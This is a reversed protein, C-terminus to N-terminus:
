PADTPAHRSGTVPRARLFLSPFAPLGATFVQFPAAEVIDFGARVLARDTRRNMNCGQRNYLRWLPNFIEMFLGPVPRASKVHELLRVEGDRRLVRRVESLARDVDNVSCLVGALVVADFSEDTYPLAEASAVELTVHSPARARALALFREEPETGTVALGPAYHPFMLGTGCGIELVRGHLGHALRARWEALGAADARVSLRDFLEAQSLRTSLRAVGPAHRLFHAIERLM